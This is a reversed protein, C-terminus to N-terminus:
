GNLKAVVPPAGKSREVVLITILFYILIGFILALPGGKLATHVMVGPLISQTWHRLLSFFLGLLFVNLLRQVILYGTSLSVQASFYTSQFTQTHILAFVLSTLFVAWLWDKSRGAFIKLVLLYLFGRFFIEEGSRAIAEILAGWWHTQSIGGMMISVPFLLLMTIGLRPNLVFGFKETKWGPTHFAALLPVYLLAWAIVSHIPPLRSFPGPAYPIIYNTVSVLLIMFGASIAAITLYRKNDAATKANM